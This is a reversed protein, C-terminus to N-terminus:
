RRLVSLNCLGLVESVSVQLLAAAWDPLLTGYVVQMFPMMLKPWALLAEASRVSVALPRAVDVMPAMIDWPGVFM